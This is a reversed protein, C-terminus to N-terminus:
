VDLVHKTMAHSVEAKVVGGEDHLAVETRCKCQFKKNLTWHVM